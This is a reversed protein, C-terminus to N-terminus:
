VRYNGKADNLTSSGRRRIGIRDAQTPPSLLTTRGTAPDPEFLTFFAEQLDGSNPIVGQDGYNEIVIVPLDSSVNTADAALRVYTRSRVAGPAFGSRFSRARVETTSNILLPGTYLPSSANPLSRNLTYRITSMGSATSLELTLDTGSFTQSDLSFTVEEGPPGPATTNEALPTPEVFYDLPSASSAPPVRGYSVNTFQAPFSPSFADVVTAGGAGANLALYEGDPSIKFPAHLEGAPGPVKDSLFVVLSAGPEMPAPTPFAYKTPTAVEDTLFYGGLDIAFPNPNYLEVWDSADGEADCLAAGDTEADAVLENIFPQAVAAGVFVTVAATATGNGNTATLTYTTTTAPSVVVSGPSSNGTAPAGSDITLTDFQEAEFALTVTTSPAVNIGAESTLTGDSATFRTISPEDSVQNLDLTAIFSFRATPTPFDTATRDDLVTWSATNNGGELRWRVPDRETADNATAFRYGDITRATGFDLILPMRNFDLWKTSTNGDIARPPQENAPNNGGPNTAELISLRTAGNYLEFESLQISNAAGDNRLKVPVFRYYRFTAPAAHAVATLLALAALALIPYRM